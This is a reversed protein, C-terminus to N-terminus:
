DQATTIFDDSKQYSGFRDNPMTFCVVSGKGFVKQNASEAASNPCPYHGYEKHCYDSFKPMLLGLESVAASFCIERNAGQWRETVGAGRSVARYCGCSTTEETLLLKSCFECLIRLAQSNVVCEGVAM